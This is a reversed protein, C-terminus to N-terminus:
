VLGPQTVITGYKGATYFAAATPLGPTAITPDRWALPLQPPPIVGGVALASFDAAVQDTVVVTSGASTANGDTNTVTLTITQTGGGVALVTDSVQDAGPIAVGGLKYQRATAAPSYTGTDTLTITATPAAQTLTATTPSRTFTPSPVTM